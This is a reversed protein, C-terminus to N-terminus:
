DDYLFFTDGSHSVRMRGDRSMVALIQELDENNSFISFYRRSALAGDAVVIKINFHRSLERAIDAMQMNEFRLTNGQYFPQYDNISFHEIDVNHKTRDYRVMDGPVLAVGRDGEPLPFKAEVSGEVLCIEVINEQAFNRLSFSTGLVRVDVDQSKVVFPWETNKAVDLYAEGDLFVSRTNGVFQAPYTLRSGSNLHLVTGDSLTVDQKQGYPVYLEEWQISAIRQAGADHGKQYSAPILVILAIVAVVAFLYPIFKTFRTKTRAESLSSDVCEDFLSRLETDFEKVNEDSCLYKQVLEEDKLSLRDYFYDHLKDKM